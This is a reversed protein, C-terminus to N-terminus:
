ENSIVAKNRGSNKAKYLAKDSKLIAENPDANRLEYLGFSSTIKISSSFSYGEIEARLFDIINYANKIDTNLIILFEEGGWRFAYDTSRIRSYILKGFEKLVIDGIAHGYNDNISKFYDIDALVFTYDNNNKVHSLLVKSIIKEFGNRNYLNTLQDKLALNTLHMENKLENSIDRGVILYGHKKGDVIIPTITQKDYYLSGNKHENIFVADFAEDKELNIWLSDYFKSDHKGSKLINPNSGLLEEKQYGCRKTYAENVFTYSGELDTIAVHEVAQQISLKFIEENIKENVKETVDREIAMFYKIKGDKEIPSINWEVYYEKGSKKYNVTTGEFFEGKELCKRLHDLVKRQTKKGQLIRPTKGYIEDLQYESLSEFANNCYLIKPHPKDLKATTILIPNYSNEIFTQMEKPVLRNINEKL